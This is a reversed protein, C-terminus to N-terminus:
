NNDIETRSHELDGVISGFAPSQFASLEAIIAAVRPYEGLHDGKPSRLTAV